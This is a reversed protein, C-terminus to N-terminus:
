LPICGQFIYPKFHVNIHLLTAYIAHFDCDLDFLSSIQRYFKCKRLHSYRRCKNACVFGALSVGVMSYVIAIVLIWDMKLLCFTKFIVPNKSYHVFHSTSIM